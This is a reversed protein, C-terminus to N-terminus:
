MEIFNPGSVVIKSVKDTIDEGGISIKVKDFEPIGRSIIFEKPSLFMDRSNSYAQSLELYQKSVISNLMNFKKDFEDLDKLMLIADNKLEKIKKKLKEEKKTEKTM